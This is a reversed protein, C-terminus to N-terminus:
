APRKSALYVARLETPSLARKWLRLDDGRGVLANGGGFGFAHLSGLTRSAVAARSVELGNLYLVMEGDDADYSVAAHHWEGAEPWETSVATWSGNHGAGLTGGTIWFVEYASGGSSLINGNGTLADKKIWAAKTYSAPAVMGAITVASTSATGQFM